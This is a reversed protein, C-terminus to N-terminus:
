GSLAASAAASNEALFVRGTVEAAFALEPGNLRILGSWSSCELVLPLPAEEFLRGTQKMLFSASEKTGAMIGSSWCSAAASCVVEKSIGM